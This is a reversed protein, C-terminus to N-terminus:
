PTLKYGSLKIVWGDDPTTSSVVGEPNLVYRGQAHYTRWTVARTSPIQVLGCEEEDLLSVGFLAYPYSVADGLNRLTIDRVVYTNIGDGVLIATTGVAVSGSFLSVSYVPRTM